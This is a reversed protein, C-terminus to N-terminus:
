MHRGTGSSTGVRGCYAACLLGPAWEILDCSLARGRGIAQGVLYLAAAVEEKPSFVNPMVLTTAEGKKKLKGLARASKSNPQPDSATLVLQVPLEQSSAIQEALAALVGGLVREPVSGAGPLCFLLKGKGLSALLKDPGRVAKKLLAQGRHANKEWQGAHALDVVHASSEQQVRLAEVVASKGSHRAGEVVVIRGGKSEIRHLLKGLEGETRLVNALGPEWQPPKSSVVFLCSGARVVDGDRLRARQVRAENLFTGNTSGLDRVFSNEGDSTFELHRRSVTGDFSRFYNTLVNQRGLVLTDGIPLSRGPGPLADGCWVKHAWLERTGAGSRRATRRSADPQTPREDTYPASCNATM